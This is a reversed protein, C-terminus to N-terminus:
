RNRNEIESDYRDGGEQRDLRALLGFAEGLERLTRTSLDIIKCIAECMERQEKTAMKKEKRDVQRSIILISAKIPTSGINTTALRWMRFIM